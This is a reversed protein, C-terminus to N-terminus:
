ASVRDLTFTKVFSRVNSGFNIDAASQTSFYGLLPDKREPTWASKDFTEFFIKGMILSLDQGPCNRNMNGDAVAEDKAMQAFGVGGYAEYDALPRVIFEEANAGWVEPDRMALAGM